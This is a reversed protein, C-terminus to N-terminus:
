QGEYPGVYGGFGRLAHEALARAQMDEPDQGTETLHTTVANEQARQRM